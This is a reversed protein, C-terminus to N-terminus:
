YAAPCLTLLRLHLRPCVCVRSAQQFKEQLDPILPYGPPNNLAVLWAWVHLFRASYLRRDSPSGPFNPPFDKSNVLAQSSLVASSRFAWPRLGLLMTRHPRVLRDILRLLGQQMLQLNTYPSGPRPDAMIYDYRTAIRMAVDLQKCLEGVWRRATAVSRQGWEDDELEKLQQEGADGGHMFPRKYRSVPREINGARGSPNYEVREAAREAAGKGEKGVEVASPQDASSSAHQDPDRAHEEGAGDAAARTRVGFLLITAQTCEREFKPDYVGLLLPHGSGDPAGLGKKGSYVVLQTAAVAAALNAARGEHIMGTPPTPYTQQLAFSDLQTVLRNVKNEPILAFDKWTYYGNVMSAKAWRLMIYQMRKQTQEARLRAEEEEEDSVLMRLLFQCESNAAVNLANKGDVTVRRADTGGLLLRSVVKDHGQMSACVLPTQGMDNQSSPDAQSKLLFDVVEVHGHNAAAHLPTDGYVGVMDPPFRKRAMTMERIDARGSVQGEVLCTVAELDGIAAFCILANWDLAIATSAM